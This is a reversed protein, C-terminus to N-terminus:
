PRGPYAECETVFAFHPDFRIEADHHDLFALRVFRAPLPAFSVLRAGPEGLPATMRGVDRFASGDTSVLLQITRTSGFPPTSIRLSQLVTERELDITVFKPFGPSNGTAYCAGATTAYSGDTLGPDWGWVNPDSSQYPKGRAANAGLDGDEPWHTHFAGAPLGEKNMLNPEATQSWAFRVRRPEPVDPSSVLVTRGDESIVASAPVFNMDAGAIEFHTLPGGDRSVLGSGVHDFEIRIANAEVAYGSQLPGSYVLNEAGYSHHLAWLALRRGVESKNRPHIDAVDGIDNIVAMGTRYIELCAQQAAWIEPLQQARQDGYNFPALQVLLFPAESNRFAKRWGNVLARTKHYYAMGEGNNSEGQYWTFGRLAFPALPHIMAQWTGTEGNHALKLVPPPEPLPPTPLGADRADAAAQVWDRVADIHRGQSDRYAPSGPTRGARDRDLDGLEPVEAFADLPTWPEIKSGGWASQIIGIPIDLKEHLQRGFFYGVATFGRVTEPTCATWRAEVDSEPTYALKLPVQFLRVGPLEKETAAAQDEDRSAAISWQMNSQGSCLWVEGVLINGVEMKEEAGGPAVASIALTGPEFSATLPSLIVEWRGDPGAEATASKDRFTATVIAGPDAWGWVPVPMERQLVMNPSFISPLRLAATAQPPRFAALTLVALALTRHLSRQNM